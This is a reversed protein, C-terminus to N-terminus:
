WLPLIFGLYLNGTQVSRVVSDIGAALRRNQRYYYDLVIRVNTQVDIQLELIYKDVKYLPKKLNFFSYRLHRWEKKKKYATILTGPDL